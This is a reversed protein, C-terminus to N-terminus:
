ELGVLKRKAATFEEQTLAGDHFLTALTAFQDTLSTAVVATVRTAGLGIRAKFWASVHETTGHNVEVEALVTGQGHVRMLVKLMGARQSSVGTVDAIRLNFAPLLKGTARYQVTGAEANEVLSGHGFGLDHSKLTM